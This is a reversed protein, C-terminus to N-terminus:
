LEESPFSEESGVRIIRWDHNSCNVCPNKSVLAGVHVGHDWVISSSLPWCSVVCFFVRIGSLSSSDDADDSQGDENKDGDEAHNGEAFEVVVSRVTVSGFDCVSVALSVSKDVGVGLQSTMM